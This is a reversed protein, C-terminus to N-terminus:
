WSGTCAIRCCGVRELGQGETDWSQDLESASRGFLVEVSFWTCLPVKAVLRPVLLKMGSEGLRSGRLRHSGMAM